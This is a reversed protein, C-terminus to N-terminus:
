DPEERRENQHKEIDGPHSRQDCHYAGSQRIHMLQYTADEHEAKQERWDDPMRILCGYPRQASEDRAGVREKM